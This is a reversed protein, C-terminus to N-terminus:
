TAPNGTGRGGRGPEPWALIDGARRAKRNSRTRSQMPPGCRHRLLGYRQTLASRGCRLLKLDASGGFKLYLTPAGSKLSRDNPRIRHSSSVCWPDSSLQQAKGQARQDVQIM